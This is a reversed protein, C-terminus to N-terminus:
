HKVEKQGFTFCEPNFLRPSGDFNCIPPGELKEGLVVGHKEEDVRQVFVFYPLKALTRSHVQYLRDGRVVSRGGATKM